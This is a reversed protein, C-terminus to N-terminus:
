NVIKLELKTHTQKARPYNCKLPQNPLHSMTIAFTNDKVFQKLKVLNILELNM